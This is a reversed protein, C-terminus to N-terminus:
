RTVQLLGSELLLETKVAGSGFDWIIGVVVPAFSEADDIGRGGIRLNVTRGRTANIADGVGWTRDIGRLIISGHGTADATVDRVAAAYALAAASDDVADGEDVLATRWKFRHPAFVVKEARLPWSSDLAYDAAATLCQDSEISGILRLTLQPEGPIGNLTNYLLQLYSVDGYGL